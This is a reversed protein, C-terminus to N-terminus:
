QVNGCRFPVRVQQLFSDVVMDRWVALSTNTLHKCWHPFQAVFCHPLGVHSKTTKMCTDFSSSNTFARILTQPHLVGSHSPGNCAYAVSLAGGLGISRVQVSQYCPLLPPWNGYAMFHYQIHVLLSPPSLAVAVGRGDTILAPWWESGEM